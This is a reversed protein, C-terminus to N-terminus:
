LALDSGPDKAAHVWIVNVTAMLIFSVASLIGGFGEWRWAVLFGILGIVFLFTVLGHEFDPGPMEGQEIVEAIFFLLSFVVILTGLIRAVWRALTVMKTPSSKTKM